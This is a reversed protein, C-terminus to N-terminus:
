KDSEVFRVIGGIIWGYSLYHYRAVTGPTV